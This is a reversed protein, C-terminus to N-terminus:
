QIEGVLRALETQNLVNQERCFECEYVSINPTAANKYIWTILTWM